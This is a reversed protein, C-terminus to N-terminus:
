QVAIAALDLEYLPQYFFNRVRSSFYFRSNDTIYSALPAANRALDIDLNGFARYRATGVM